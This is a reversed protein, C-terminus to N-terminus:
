LVLYKIAILLMCTMIVIKIYTASLYRQMRTGIYIGAFGGIGFSFGLLWDPSVIAANQAFLISALYYCGVGAISAIFTSFLAAGSLTHVPIRYYAVMYPVVIAGGGIGYTGGVIGVIFGLVIIPVTPISVLENNFLYEIKALNFMKMIVNFNNKDLKKIKVKKLLDFLIKGGLYLLVLGAFIKFSAADPLYKIRIIAGLFMGPVTGFVIAWALPWVMRKEKTQRYVGSPIAVINFLLNTSSAAPGAFGLFSVQFPMLLFAGTVGAVSAFSSIVFAVLTPLWWYTEVGSIPFEFM